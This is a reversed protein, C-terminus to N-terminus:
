VVDPANALHDAPLWENDSDLWGKFKVLYHLRQYRYKSDVISEVEYEESGDVLVPNPHPNLLHELIPDPHYPCVNSVSIVPHIGQEHPSLRLKIAAPSIVKKIVFPGLWKHDLKKTPCTTMYNQANLWVKAGVEYAPTPSRQHDYYQAMEDMTHKLAAKAEDQMQSMRQAFNDTAEVASSWTPESGMRPHQGSDLEFPTCRTTSHIRNNYAFEALPLWDAWDDQRHSVFVRLYAEIEQNVHETQGDTQPHYSTSPTLKVGLLAALERLFNSMFAPRRDSLVEEPLRHHRWVHELFLRAVGASDLSNVTPIAHIRKSLCDVVVLIANYGKSDPLEGIMDISIVQWHRDPVKNPIVKGVKQTPFTKTQNCADCGTIFKTIYRSLGPWWYNQSVLELM